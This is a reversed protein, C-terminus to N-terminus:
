GAVQAWYGVEAGPLLTVAYVANGPAQLYTTYSVSGAAQRASDYGAEKDTAWGLASNAGGMREWIQGFGRVPTFLGSPAQDGPDPQGEVYIDEYIHVEGDDSLVYIQKLDSFWLMVGHQFPQWVGYVSIAPDQPCRPSAGVGGLWDQACTVTVSVDQTVPDGAGEVELRYRYTGASQYGDFQVSGSVPVPAAHQPRPCDETECLYFYASTGVASWDFTVADTNTITEASASFHDIQAAQATAETTAEPTAALAGSPLWIVAGVPLADPDDLCNLAALQTVTIATQNAILDALRDGPRVVYPSFNALTYASCTAARADNPNPTVRILPTPTSFPVIPTVPQQQALAAGAILLLLALALALAISKM